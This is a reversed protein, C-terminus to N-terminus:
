KKAYNGVTYNKVIEDVGFDEDAENRLIFQLRKYKKFKKNIFLESPINSNLGFKREIEVPDKDDKKVLVKTNSRNEIYYTGSLVYYTEDEDYVSDETCRVYEGDVVIFYHTKNSNFDEETIQTVSYDGVFEDADTCQVYEGDVLVYYRSKDANFTAEDIVIEKYPFENEKPLVSVLNGKKQMTKYYHLSGDDDFITSWEAKVPVSVNDNVDYADAYGDNDFTCVDNQNSFVLNDKFKVFCNAPVNELYYCEYVLVTKDNGWSNRQNGDLVYVSARNGGVALFYKGDHVFSYADELQSESLLRKDIFYSRNQVKHEEDQTPVIAMVGKPSLFLTEDGLINFSYKALAGVGQVGQKVAYTTEEEFSTPYLLFIATDTTKSQKVVALYDGVKTLGQVATDNSGVEIYNTDPFYLPDNIKSWWVRSTYQPFQTNDARGVFMVNYIGNSYNQNRTTSNFAKNDQPINEDYHKYIARVQTDPNVVTPDKVHDEDFVYNFSWSPPTTELDTIAINNKSVADFTPNDPDVSYNAIELGDLIAYGNTDVSPLSQTIVVERQWTPAVINVTGIPYTDTANASDLTKLYVTHTGEDAKVFGGVTLSDYDASSSATHGAIDLTVSTLTRGEFVDVDSYDCTVSTFGRIVDSASTDFSLDHTGVTPANTPSWVAYLTLAGNYYLLGGINYDVIGSQARDATTAWGVCNYGNKTPKTNPLTLAEDHWKTQSAPAGSGGNANFAITYSYRVPVTINLTATSTKGNVASGGASSVVHNLQNTHYITKGVASHGKSYSYDRQGVLALGSSGGSVSKKVQGSFGSYGTAGGWYDVTVNSWTDNWPDIGSSYVRITYTTANNTLVDYSLYARHSIKGTALAGVWAGYVTAM